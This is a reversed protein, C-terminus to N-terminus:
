RALSTGNFSIMYPASAPQRIFNGPGWEEGLRIEDNGDYMPVLSVPKSLKGSSGDIITLTVKGGEDKWRGWFGSSLNAMAWKGDGHIELRYGTGQIEAHQRYVGTLPKTGRPRAAVAAAPADAPPSSCGAVVALALALAFTRAQVLM